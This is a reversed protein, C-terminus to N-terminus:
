IPLAPMLLLKLTTMIPLAVEGVGALSNQLEANAKNSEIVAANQEKYAKGLDGYAGDLTKAILAQREQESSCKALQENFKDESIGAWNLADALNGTIQGVKSTENISEALGDLPISDGYKSWIGAMSNTVSALNEQSMGIAELNSTTTAAATEDGLIGYFETFQAKVDEASRGAGKAVTELKNMNGIWEKSTEGTALFATVLTGAAAAIGKIGAVIGKGALKALKGALSESSKSAEKQEKELKDTEEATDGTNGELKELERRYAEIARAAAEAETEQAELQDGLKKAEDSNEGQEECVREYEARLDATTKKQNKLAKELGAVKTKLETASSGAADQEAEM